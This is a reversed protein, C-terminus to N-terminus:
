VEQVINVRASWNLGIMYLAIPVPALRAWMDKILLKVTGTTVAAKYSHQGAAPLSLNQNQLSVLCELPTKKHETVVM